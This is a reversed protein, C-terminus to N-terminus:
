RKHEVVVGLKEDHDRVVELHESAFQDVETTAFKRAAVGHEFLVDLEGYTRGKPEPLRFYTWTWCLGCVAAWFFGAKGGWSWATPNVMNPTLANNILGAINYANRALVISKAKLRTSSLEAVLSYCVPGITLDYVFTYFIICGGIGWGLPGNKVLTPVGLGGVILLIVTLIALGWCYLTRRGMKNMLFWSSITGVAGLAYQGMGLNFAGNATLGASEFFYISYGMLGSGCFTQIVWVACVIETRRLDTGKFCQWYSTGASVQRELENTHVMMAVTDDANFGAADAYEASTLKRMARKAEDLQNHRVHWWPSEPAFFVGIMIPLPWMWQIAFPIRYAWEDTRTLFSTLVGTAILQGFVWCLNVYTTLYARLQVPCVESAYATTMTQFVGWPIGQLIDGILLTVLNQAFFPIFIFAIMLALSGMMTYRYGFKDVIIGAAALGLIEGVLAGNSLGTQWRAPIQYGSEADIFEGYKKQFPPFAYFAGILATDYGEMVIATSFLISYLMAKKYLPFAQALTMHKESDTAQKAELTLHAIDPNAVSMKRINTDTVRLVNDHHEVNTIHGELDLSSRQAAM